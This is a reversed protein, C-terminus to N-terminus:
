LYKIFRNEKDVLVSKPKSAVDSYEFAMVIIEEGKKIL